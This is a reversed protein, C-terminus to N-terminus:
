SRAQLLNQRKGELFHPREWRRTRIVIGPPWYYTITLHAVAIFAQGPQRYPLLLRRETSRGGRRQRVLM